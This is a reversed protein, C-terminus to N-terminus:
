TMTLATLDLGRMKAAADMAREFDSLPFESVRIPSLDLLGAAILDALRAPADKPYMFCGMVSWDMALMDGVTIPLAERVSGMLVLRGGRRLCRLAALTSAASDARGVLDLSLDISGGAAARLADVDAAVDGTLVVPTLRPGAAAALTSLAIRDRGAAVVKAAGLALALLAGASGFYGSAGNVVVTEGAHLGGRILGGFPVAFKSIATARAAPLADLSAPLPTVVAAPVRVFEACAGDPWDAQVAKTLPPGRMSAAPRMGTLGILIQAPEPAREDVVFHPNLSVRRGASLHYVGPGVAEVVGVGATGPTFPRTPTDYGLSGDLVQRWYSLLPVAELRVVVGGVGPEPKPLDQLELRGTELARWAKM